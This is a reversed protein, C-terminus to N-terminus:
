FYWTKKYLINQYDQYELCWNSSVDVKSFTWANTLPRWKGCGCDGTKLVPLRWTKQALM